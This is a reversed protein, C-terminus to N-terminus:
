IRGESIIETEVLVPIDVTNTIVGRAPVFTGILCLRYDRRDSVDKMLHEYQRRAVGENVATFPPGFEEAVCDQITYINVTTQM